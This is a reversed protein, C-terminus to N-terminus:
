QTVMGLRHAFHRGREYPDQLGLDDYSATVSDRAELMGHLFAGAKTRARRSGYRYQEVRNRVWRTM